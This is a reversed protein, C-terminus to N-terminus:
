NMPWQDNRKIFPFDSEDHQQLAQVLGCLQTIADQVFLVRQELDALRRALFLENPTPPTTRIEPDPM